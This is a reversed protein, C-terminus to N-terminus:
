EASQGPGGEGFRLTCRGSERSRSQSFVIGEGFEKAWEAYETQCIAKSIQPELHTRGSRELIKYWPCSDVEVSLADDGKTLRYGWGESEFKIPLALALGELGPLGGALERAKRAQIKGMSRWVAEDIELAADFSLRAECNVFWLGDVSFYSRRLYEIKTEPEM